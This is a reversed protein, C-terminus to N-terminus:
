PITKILEYKGIYGGESDEDRGFIQLKGDKSIVYFQQSVHAWTGRCATLAEAPIKRKKFGLKGVEQYNGTVAEAVLPRKGEVDLHLKGRPIGADDEKIDFHWAVKPEAALLLTPLVLVAALLFLINRLNM